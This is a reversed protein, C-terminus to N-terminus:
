RNDDGIELPYEEWFKCWAVVAAKAMMESSIDYQRAAEELLESTEGDISFILKTKKTM